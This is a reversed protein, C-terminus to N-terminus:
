GTSGPALVDVVVSEVYTDTRWGRANGVGALSRVKVTVRVPFRGPKTWTLRFQRGPEISVVEIAADDQSTVSVEITAPKGTIWKKPAIIRIVPRSGYGSDGKLEVIEEPESTEVSWEHREVILGASDKLTATVTHHGAGPFEHQVTAPQNETPGDGFDWEWAPDPQAQTQPARRNTAVRSPWAIGPSGQAASPSKAGPTGAPHTLDLAKAVAGGEETVKVTYAVAESRERLHTGDGAKVRLGVSVALVDGGFGSISFEGTGVLHCRRTEGGALEVDVWALCGDGGTLRVELDCPGGTKESSVHIYRPAWDTIRLNGSSSWSFIRPGERWEPKLDVERHTDRLRGAIESVLAPRSLLGGHFLSVGSSVSYVDDPGPEVYSSELEVAMDNADVTRWIAGALNPSRAAYILYRPGKGEAPGSRKDELNENLNALYWNAPLADYLMRGASRGSPFKLREEVMRLIAPEGLDIGFLHGSAGFVLSKLLTLARKILPDAAKLLVERLLALPLGQTGKPAATVLRILSSPSEKKRLYNNRGVSLAVYEYYSDTLGDEPSADAMGGGDGGPPNGGDGSPPDSGDGGPMDRGLLRSYVEQKTSAIWEQFTQGSASLRAPGWTRQRAFEAYLPEYTERARAAVFGQRGEPMRGGSGSLLNEHYLVQREVAAASAAFSGHNPPSIMVLNEVNGRVGGLYQQAALYKRSVLAGMSHAIIDVSSWGTSRMVDEVFGGLDKSIEVYDGSSCSSYDFAFLTTGEEYGADVMWQYFSGPKQWGFSKEKSGGLGHVLIVPRPPIPEARGLGQAFAPTAAPGGAVAALLALLLAPVLAKRLSNM